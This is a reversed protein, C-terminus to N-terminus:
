TLVVVGSRSAALPVASLADVLSEGSVAVVGGTGAGMETARQALVVATSYRTDGALVREGGQDLAGESVQSSASATRPADVTALLSCALAWAFAVRRATRAARSVGRLACAMNM